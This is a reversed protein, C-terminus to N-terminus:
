LSIPLRQSEQCCGSKVSDKGCIGSIKNLSTPFWLPMPSTPDWCLYQSIIEVVDVAIKWTLGPSSKSFSSYWM